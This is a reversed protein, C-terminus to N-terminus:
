QQYKLLQQVEDDNRKQQCQLDNYKEQDHREQQCQLANELKAIHEKYYCELNNMAMNHQEKNEEHFIPQQVGPQFHEHEQDNM